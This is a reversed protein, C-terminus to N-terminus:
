CIQTLTVAWASSCFPRLKATTQLQGKLQDTGHVAAEAPRQTSTHVGPDDPRWTNMRTVCDSM